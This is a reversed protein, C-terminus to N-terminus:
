KKINGWTTAIRGSPDVPQGKSQRSIIKYSKLSGNFLEQGNLAKVINVVGIGSVVKLNWIPFELIPIPNERDKKTTYRNDLFYSLSYATKIENNIKLFEPSNFYYRGVIEVSETYSDGNSFKVTASAELVKWYYWERGDNDKGMRELSTIIQDILKREGFARGDFIEAIEADVGIIPEKIGEENKLFAELALVLPQNRAFNKLWELFKQNQTDAIAKGSSEVYAIGDTSVYFSLSFPDEDGLGVGQEKLIGYTVGNINEFGLTLTLEGASGFDYNWYSGGEGPFWLREYCLVDGTILLAFLLFVAAASVIRKMEFEKRFIPM